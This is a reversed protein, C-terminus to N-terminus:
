SSRQGDKFKKDIGLAVVADHARRARLWKFFHFEADEVLAIANFL